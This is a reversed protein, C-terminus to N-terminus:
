LTATLLFDVAGNVGITGTGPAGGTVTSWSAMVTAANKVLKFTCFNSANAVLGAPLSLWVRDVRISHLKCSDFKITTDAAFSAFDLPQRYNRQLNPSRPAATAM